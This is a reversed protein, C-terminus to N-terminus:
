TLLYGNREWGAGTGDVAAHRVQARLAGPHTVPFKVALQYLELAEAWEPKGVARWYTIQGEVLYKAKEWLM